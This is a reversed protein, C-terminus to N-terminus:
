RFNTTQTKRYKLMFLMPLTQSQKMAKKINKLARHVSKRASDYNIQMIQCLETYDCGCNYRLYLIERARPSLELLVRNLELQQDDINDDDIDNALQYNFDIDLNVKSNQHCKILARRFSRFLYARINNVDGLSERHDILYCFFDQICDKVLEHNSVIKIGYDYIADVHENYIISLALMNGQRFQNWISVRDVM